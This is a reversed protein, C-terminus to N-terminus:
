RRAARALVSSYVGLPAAVSASGQGAASGHAQSMLLQGLDVVPEAISAPFVRAAPEHPGQKARRLAATRPFHCRMVRRASRSDRRRCRREALRLPLPPRPASVSARGAPCPGGRLPAVPGLSLGSRASAAEQEPRRARTRRSGRRVAGRRLLLLKAVGIRVDPSAEKPVRGARVLPPPSAAPQVRCAATLRRGAARGVGDNAPGRRVALVIDQTLGGPSFTPRRRSPSARIHDPPV